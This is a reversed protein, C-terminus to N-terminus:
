TLSRLISPFGEDRLYRKAPYPRTLANRQGLHLTISQHTATVGNIYYRWRRPIEIAAPQPAYVQLGTVSGQDWQDEELYQMPLRGINSLTLSTTTLDGEGSEKQEEIKLPFPIWTRGLYDIPQDHETLYFAKGPSVEIAICWVFNGQDRLRSLHRRALLPINIM